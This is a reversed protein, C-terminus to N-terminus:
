SEISFGNLKVEIKKLKNLWRFILSRIGSSEADLAEKCSKCYYRGKFVFENDKALVTYNGLHLVSGCDCRSTKAIQLPIKQSLSQELELGFDGIGKFQVTFYKKESNWDIRLNSEDWRPGSTKFSIAQCEKNFLVEENNSLNKGHKGIPILEIKQRVLNKDTVKRQDFEKMYKLVEVNM